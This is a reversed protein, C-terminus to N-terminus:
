TKPKTDNANVTNLQSEASKMYKIKHVSRRAESARRTMM